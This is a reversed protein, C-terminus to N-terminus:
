AEVGVEVGAEILILLESICVLSGPLKLAVSLALGVVVKSGLLAEPLDRVEGVRM